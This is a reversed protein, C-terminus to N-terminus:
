LKRFLPALIRFIVYGTGIQGLVSYPMALRIIADLWPTPFSYYIIHSFAPLLFLIALFLWGYWKIPKRGTHFSFALLFGFLMYLLCQIYLSVKPFDEILGGKFDVFFTYLVFYVIFLIPSIKRMIEEGINMIAIM